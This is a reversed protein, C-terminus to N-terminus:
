IFCVLLVQVAPHSLVKESRIERGVFLSSSHVPIERSAHIYISYRGDHGQAFFKSCVLHVIVFHNYYLLCLVFKMDTLELFLHHTYILVAGTFIGGV